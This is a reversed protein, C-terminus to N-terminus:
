RGGPGRLRKRRREPTPGSAIVQTIGVGIEALVRGLMLGWGGDAVGKGNDIAAFCLWVAKSRM